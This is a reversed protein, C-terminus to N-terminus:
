KKISRPSFSRLLSKVLFAWYKTIPFCPRHNFDISLNNSKFIAKAYPFYQGQIVTQEINFLNRSDFLHKSKDYDDYFGNVENFYNEFGWATRGTNLSLLSLLYKRDWIAPQLSIGYKRTKDIYYLHDNIKDNKDYTLSFFRTKFKYYLINENVVKEYIEHVHNLKVHKTMVFDDLLFIIYNEEIQSLAQIARDCWEMNKNTHLIQLNNWEFNLEQTVLYRKFPLDVGYKDLLVLHPNWLDSYGDFSFIVIALSEM